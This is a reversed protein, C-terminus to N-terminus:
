IGHGVREVALTSKKHPYFAGLFTMPNLSGLARLVKGDICFHRKIASPVDQNDINSDADEDTLSDHDFMIEERAISLIHELQRPDLRGLM